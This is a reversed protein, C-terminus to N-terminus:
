MIDSPSRFKHIFYRSRSYIINLIRNLTEGSCVYIILLPYNKKSFPQLYSVAEETYVMYITKNHSSFYDDDPLAYM